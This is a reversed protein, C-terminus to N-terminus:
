SSYLLEHASTKWSLQFSNLETVLIRIYYLIEPYFVKTISNGSISPKM